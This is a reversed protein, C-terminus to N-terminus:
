SFLQFNLEIGVAHAALLEGAEHIRQPLGSAGPGHSPPAEPEDDAILVVVVRQQAGQDGRAEV